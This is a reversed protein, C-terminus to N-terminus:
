ALQERPRGVRSDLLTIDMGVREALGKLEDARALLERLWMCDRAAKAYLTEARKLVSLAKDRDGEALAMQVAQRIQETPYPVGESELVKAHGMLVGLREEIPGDAVTVAM